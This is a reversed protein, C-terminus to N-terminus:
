NVEHELINIGRCYGVGYLFYVSVIGWKDLEERWWKPCLAKGTTIETGDDLKFVVEPPLRKKLAERVRSLSWYFKRDYDVRLEYIVVKAM